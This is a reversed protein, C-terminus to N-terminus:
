DNIHCRAIDIEHHVEVVHEGDDQRETGIGIRESRRVSITVARLLRRRIGTLAGGRGIGLNNRYEGRGNVELGPAQGSQPEFCTSSRWRMPSVARNRSWKEPTRRDRDRGVSKSTLRADLRFGRFFGGRWVFRLRDVREIFDGGPMIPSTNRGGKGTFDPTPDGNDSVFVRTDLLGFDYCPENDPRGGALQIIDTSM